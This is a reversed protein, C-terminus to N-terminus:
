LLKGLRADRIAEEVPYPNDGKVFAELMLAIAIEDDNLNVGRYPNFFVVEGGLTVHSLYLKQNIKESDRHFIFDEKILLGEENTYTAGKETVTGREGRIEFHSPFLYTHYQNSSFDQIFLRDGSFKCIRLKRTYSEVEGETERGKRSGTKVGKSPFDYGLIEPLEDEIGFIGRVISAAHHNHLASLYVQDVKGIKPLAKKVSAYLPTHWYQELVLAKSKELRTLAEESLTLFSTEVLLKEGKAELSEVLDAFGNAGSAIIVADHKIALLADLDCSANWGVQTLTEAREKSRTYVGVIRFRDPLASAIRMYFEARWGTGALIFETM